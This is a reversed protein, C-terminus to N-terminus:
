QEVEVMNQTILYDDGEVEGVWETGPELARLAPLQNRANEVCPPCDDDLWREFRDVMFKHADAWTMRQDVFAADPEGDDWWGIFVRWESM